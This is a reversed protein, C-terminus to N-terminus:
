AFNRPWVICKLHVHIYYYRAPRWWRFIPSPQIAWERSWLITWWSTRCYGRRRNWSRYFGLWKWSQIKSLGIYCLWGKTWSIFWFILFHCIRIRWFFLNVWAFVSFFAFIIAGIINSSAFNFRIETQSWTVCMYIFTVFYFFAWLGSFVMDFIVYHKRTRISSM